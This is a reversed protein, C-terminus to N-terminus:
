ITFAASLTTFTFTRQFKYRRSFLNIKEDKYVFLRDPVTGHSITYDGNKLM